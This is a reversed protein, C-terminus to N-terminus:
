AEYGGSISLPFCVFGKHVGAGLSLLLSTWFISGSRGQLTQIDGTSTPTLLPRSYPCPSQSCPWPPSAHPM